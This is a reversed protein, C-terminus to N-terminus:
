ALAMNDIIGMVHHDNSANVTLIINKDVLFDQFINSNFSGENDSIIQHISHSKTKEKLVKSPRQKEMIKNYLKEFAELVVTDTKNELPVVYCYRSFVDMVVYMYLFTKNNIINSKRFRQLDFLDMHMLENPALSTIHGQSKDSLKPAVLQSNINNQVNQIIDDKSFKYKSQVLKILKNLGPYNYNTNIENIADNIEM